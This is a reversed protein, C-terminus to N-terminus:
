IGELPAVTLSLWPRSDQTAEENSLAPQLAILSAGPPCLLLIQAPSM